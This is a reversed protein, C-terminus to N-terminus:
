ARPNFFEVVWHFVFVGWIMPMTRALVTLHFFYNM